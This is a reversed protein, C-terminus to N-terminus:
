LCTLLAPAGFRADYTVHEISSATAPSHGSTMEQLSRKKQGGERDGSVDISTTADGAAELARQEVAENGAETLKDASLSADAVLVSAASPTRVLFRRSAM